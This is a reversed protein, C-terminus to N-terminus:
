AQKSAWNDLEKHTQFDPLTRPSWGRLERRIEWSSKEDGESREGETPGQVEGGRAFPFAIVFKETTLDTTTALGQAGM